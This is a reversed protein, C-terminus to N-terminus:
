NSIINITSNQTRNTKAQHIHLLHLKKNTKEPIHFSIKKIIKPTNILGNLQKYLFTFHNITNNNTLSLYAKLTKM